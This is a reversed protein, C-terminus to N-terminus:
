QRRSLINRRPVRLAISDYRWGKVPAGANKIRGAKDRTQILNQEFVEQITRWPREASGDNSVNGKQPDVYFVAGRVGGAAVFELAIAAMLGAKLLSMIRTKRM